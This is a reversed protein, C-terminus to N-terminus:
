LNIEVVSLHVIWLKCFVDGRIAVSLTKMVDVEM